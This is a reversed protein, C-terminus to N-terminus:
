EWEGWVINVGERSLVADDEEVTSTPVTPTTTNYEPAFNNAIIISPIAAGDGENSVRDMLVIGTSGGLRGNQLKTDLLGKFYSNMDSAFNAIDGCMGAVSSM